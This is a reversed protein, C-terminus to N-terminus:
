RALHTTSIDLTYWKGAFIPIKITPLKIQVQRETSSHAQSGASSNHRLINRIEQVPELIDQIKTMVTCYTDTFSDLDPKRREVHTEDDDELLLKEQIINYKEWAKLAM